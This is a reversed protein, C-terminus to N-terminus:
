KMDAARSIPAADIPCTMGLRFKCLGSMAIMAFSAILLKTGVSKAFGEVDKCQEPQLNGGLLFAKKIM